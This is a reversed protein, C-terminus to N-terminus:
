GKANPRKLKGFAQAFFDLELDQEELKSELQRIRESQSPPPPDDREAVQRLRQVEERRWSLLMDPSLGHKKALAEVGIRGELLDAMLKGKFKADYRLRQRGSTSM